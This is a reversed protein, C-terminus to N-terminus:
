LVTNLLQLAKKGQCLSSVFEHANKLLSDSVSEVGFREYRIYDTTEKLTIIVRFQHQEALNRCCRIHRYGEGRTSAEVPRLARDNSDEIPEASDRMFVFPYTCRFIRRGKADRM